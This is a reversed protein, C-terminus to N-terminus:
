TCSLSLVHMTAIVRLMAKALESRSIGSGILRILPPPPKSGRKERFSVKEIRGSLIRGDLQNEPCKRTSDRDPRQGLVRAKYAEWKEGLSSDDFGRVEKTVFLRRLTPAITVDVASWEDGLFYPGKIRESFTKLM